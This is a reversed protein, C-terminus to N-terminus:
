SSPFGSALSESSYFTRKGEAEWPVRHPSPSPHGSLFPLPLNVSVAASPKQAPFTSWLDPLSIGTEPTDKM